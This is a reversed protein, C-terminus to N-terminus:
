QKIKNLLRAIGEVGGKIWTTANTEQKDDIKSLDLSLGYKKGDAGRTNIYIYASGPEINIEHYTRLLAQFADEGEKWEIPKPKVIM